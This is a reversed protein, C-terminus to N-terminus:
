GTARATLRSRELVAHALDELTPALDTLTEAGRVHIHESVLENMGGVLARLLADRADAPVWSYVGHAVIYDFRGLSGSTLERVDAQRFELNALGIEGAAASAETSRARPNAAPSSNPSPSPPPPTEAPSTTTRAGSSPCSSPASPM